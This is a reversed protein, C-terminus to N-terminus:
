SLVPELPLHARVVTGQPLKRALSVGGGLEAARERMSTLGVGARFTDPQGSGSDAVELELNADVVVIRVEVAAGPAHRAANTMAETAIRYAAVEVAAPLPPLEGPVSVVMGGLRLAQDRLAPCLGLEDLISPRLNYVIRRVEAVAREAETRLSAMLEGTSEPVDAPLSRRATDIGLGIGALTSGLGDHLDRRLRLREEERVAILRERAASAAHTLAVARAALGLQTVLSDLLRRDASSFTEGPDRTQLVLRGISEGAFPLDIEQRPGAVPDGVRALEEGEVEIVVSRLRLAEALTRAALPLVDDPAAAADLRVGLLGFAAAPDDRLGFVLRNARRQVRDRLPLVALAGAAAAVVAPVAGSVLSDLLASVIAYVAVVLATLAGYVLSRSLVARLDFLGYRVIGIWSAVGIAIAAWNEAFTVTTTDGGSVGVAICAFYALPIAFSARAALQLGRRLDDTPAEPARRRLYLSCLLTLPGIVAIALVLIDGAAIGTPSPVDVARTGLLTPSLINWLLLAVLDGVCVWFLWRGKRSAPLGRGPLLLVGLTGVLPVSVVAASGAIFAFLTPVPISTDGDVFWADAMLQCFTTLPLAAGAVLLIWGVGSRRNTRVIAAGVLGTPLFLVATGALMGDFWGAGGRAVLVLAGAASLAGVSLAALVSMRVLRHM